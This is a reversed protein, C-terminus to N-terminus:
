YLSFYDHFPTSLCAKLLSTPESNHILSNIPNSQPFLTSYPIDTSIFTPIPLSIQLHTFSFGVLSYISLLYRRHAM